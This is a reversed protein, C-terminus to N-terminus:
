FLCTSQDLRLIKRAYKGSFPYVPGATHVSDMTYTTPEGACTCLLQSSRQVAATNQKRHRYNGPKAFKAKNRVCCRRESRLRLLRIKSLFCNSFSYPCTRNEKTRLPNGSKDKNYCIPVCEGRRGQEIPHVYLRYGTHQAVVARSERQVSVGMHGGLHLLGRRILHAAKQLVSQRTLARRLRFRRSPLDDREFLHTSFVSLGSAAGM